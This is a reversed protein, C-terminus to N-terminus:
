ALVRSQASEEASLATAWRWYCARKPHHTLPFVQGARLPIEWEDLSPPPESSGDVYRDFEYWGSQLCMDGSQFFDNGYSVM